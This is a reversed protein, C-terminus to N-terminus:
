ANEEVIKIFYNELNKHKKKLESMKGQYIIEGNKIIGISSCIEQAIGLVHTSLFVTNGKKVYDKLFDKFKKQIVPDLNILPEDIFVLEPDHIFAQTALVKQRTGRSLDKILHNRNKEFQFFTLWHDIRKHADRVKRVKCIFELYEQVTLFSPPNEQEPIIGIKERVAIPDEVVDLGMVKATGSSPPIQGTLMKTLTTKGSGNPGLFGFLEGKELSFSHEDLKFDAYEKTISKVDLVKM